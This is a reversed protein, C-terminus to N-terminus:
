QRSNQKSRKLPPENVDGGEAGAPSLPDTPESGESDILCEFAQDIDDEDSDSLCVVGDGIM